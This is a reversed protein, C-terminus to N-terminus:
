LNRRYKKWKKRGRKFIQPIKFEVEIQDKAENYTGFYSVKDDIPENLLAVIIDRAEDINIEYPLPKVWAMRPQVIQIYTKDYDVLFCIDKEYEDVLTKPIRFRNEMKEKFEDFYADM